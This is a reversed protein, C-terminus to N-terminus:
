GDKGGTVVVKRGGYEAVEIPVEYADSLNKASLIDETNGVMRLGGDILALTEAYNVVVNLLHSVMGVTINDQDHLQKLLEMIAHESGIDMDNTPEDLILVDPEAALARAILTRQKQGGSLERYAGAALDAIGVHRLCEMVFERDRRSPRGFVGMLTYRGMLAIDMVTLPFVEDIFQRQPVYGFRAAANRRVQGSMPKLIGLMAKLITTKGAGNPGVIGLFDGENLALNLDRLVTRKGYGLDAHELVLM